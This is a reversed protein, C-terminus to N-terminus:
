ACAVNGAGTNYAAIACYLKSEPDKVEKLYNYYLIHLYASGMTINNTSDYLYNASVLKKENYLYQYTDMGATKPVIQMLGYAPVHSRARPNFCSETHIIAFVLPTPLKQIKAHKRVTEEFLQSRKVMADKPLPVEIKYVREHPLKQSAEIKIEKPTVKAEVYEKVSEQTPPKDFIVTSLIPEAKLPADVVDDPKKIQALRKELPDTKQVTKTDITVAKALAIKLNQAAENPSKAITEITITEKEFDVNSRSKKDDAYSVWSKQSSLKPEEWIAGIEKKYDEFAKMQAEQYEKFADEQSKKYAEFEKMQDSAFDAHLQLSFLATLCASLLAKM